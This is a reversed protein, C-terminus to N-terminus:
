EGDKDANAAKGWKRSNWIHGSNRKKASKRNAVTVNEHFTESKRYDDDEVHQNHPMIEDEAFYRTTVAYATKLSPRLM